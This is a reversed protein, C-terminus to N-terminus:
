KWEVTSSTLSTDDAVQEPKEEPPQDQFREGLIWWAIQHLKTCDGYHDGPIAEFYKSVGRTNKNVLLKQGSLGAIFDSGIDAPFHLLPPLKRSIREIYLQMKASYDVYTYLLLNSYGKVQSNGWTGFSANSGKTPFFFGGSRSCIAYIRETADGSDILGCSPSIKRDTGKIPYELRDKITLLDEPTLVTGYDIVWSEGNAARAEVTWHTEKQGPDACLTVIVPEVPCEGLRYSSDRLELIKDDNVVAAQDEFPLALYNNYFDHLGAITGKKLLFEKAMMGWTIAPSAMSSVRATKIDAPSNPNKAYFFCKAVIEKQQSQSIHHECHPCELWADREVADVDWNGLLDKHTSPWKVGGRKNEDPFFELPFHEGCSPCNVALNLQPGALYETWITGKPTTPTSAFIKKEIGKYSHTRACLLDKAAAEEENESPWKDTEDGFIYQAPRGALAGASQAGVLALSCTKFHMENKRFDDANEPLLNRTAECDKLRPILERESWSKALERNASAYIMPGPAKDIVYMILNGMFTTKGLQVGMVLVITRIAPDSFWEHPAIMYPTYSLDLKGPRRTFRTSLTINQECWDKCSIFEKPVWVKSWIESLM